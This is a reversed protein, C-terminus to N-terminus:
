RCWAGPPVGYASGFAIPARAPRPRRALGADPDGQQVGAVQGGGHVTLRQGPRLEPEAVAVGVRQASRTPPAALRRGCARTPAATWETRATGPRGAARRDGLQAARAAAGSCTCRDSCGASFSAQRATCPRVGVAAARRRVPTSPGRVVATCAVWRVSSSTASSPPVPVARRSRGSWRAPGRRRCRGPGARQGVGAARQAQAAVAVGHDVQELLGARDLQVLPQAGLPAAVEGGGLQQARGGRGPVGRQAPGVGPAIAGPARASRTVTRAPCAHAGGADVPRRRRRHKAAVAASTSARRPRRGARHDAVAPVQSTSSTAPRAPRRRDRRHRPRM